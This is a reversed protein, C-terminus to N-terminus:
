IVREGNKYLIRYNHQICCLVEKESFYEECISLYRVDLECLHELFATLNFACIVTQEIVLGDGYSRACHAFDSARILNTSFSKLEEDSEYDYDDIFGRYVKGSYKFDKTFIDYLSDIFSVPREVDMENYNLMENIKNYLWDSYEYIKLDRKDICAKLILLKEKDSFEESVKFFDMRKTGVNIM